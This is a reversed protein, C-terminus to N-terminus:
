KGGKAREHCWEIAFELLDWRFVAYDSNRRDWMEAPTALNYTEDAACTYVSDVGGQTPHHQPRVAPSPVPYYFCGSFHGWATMAESWAEDVGGWDPPNDMTRRAAILASCIGWEDWAAPDSMRTAVAELLRALAAYKNEDTM